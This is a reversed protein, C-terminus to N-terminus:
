YIVSDDTRIPIDSYHLMIGITSKVVGVIGVTAGARSFLEAQKALYLAYAYDADEDAGFSVYNFTMM